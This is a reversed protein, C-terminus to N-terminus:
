KMEKKQASPSGFLFIPHRQTKLELKPHTKESAFRKKAKTSTGPSLCVLWTISRVAQVVLVFMGEERGRERM